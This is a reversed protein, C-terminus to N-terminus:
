IKRGASGEKSPFIRDAYKKSVGNEEPIGNSIGNKGGYRRTKLVKPDNVQRLVKELTKPLMIREETLKEAVKVVIDRMAVNHSRRGIETEARIGKCLQEKIRTDLNSNEIKEIEPQSRNQKDMEAIFRELDRDSSDSEKEGESSGPLKSEESQPKASSIPLGPSYDVNTRSVEIGAGTVTIEDNPLNTSKSTKITELVNLNNKESNSLTGSANTMGGGVPVADRSSSTKDIDSGNDVLKAYGNGNRNTLNSITDKIRKLWNKNGKSTSSFEGNSISDSREANRPLFSKKDSGRKNVM